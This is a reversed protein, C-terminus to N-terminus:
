QPTPMTRRLLADLTAKRVLTMGFFTVLAAAILEINAVFYLTSFVGAGAGWALLNVSGLIRRSLVQWREPGVNHEETPDNALTRQRDPLVHVCAFSALFTVSSALILM